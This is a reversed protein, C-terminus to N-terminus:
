GTQTVAESRNVIETVRVGFSEDVVVVEGRAILKGNILVDVAEGALKDLPVVSGAGLQLAERVPISARGLEVRLDLHVDMLLNMSGQETSTARAQLPAFRARKVTPEADEGDVMVLEVPDQAVQPEAQAVQEAERNEPDAQPEENQVTDETDTM